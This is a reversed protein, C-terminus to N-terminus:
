IISNFDNLNASIGDKEITIPYNMTIDINKDNIKTEVLINKGNINYGKDKFEKFDLCKILNNSIYNGLEKQIVSIEPIYIKKNFYYYTVNEGILITSISKPTNYYGGQKGIIFLGDKSTEELCNDVYEKIVNLQLSTSVGKEIEINSGLKFSGTRIYIILGILGIIIIGLIIFFTVQAKKNIM